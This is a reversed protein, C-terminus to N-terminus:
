ALGLSLKEDKLRISEEEATQDYLIVHRFVFTKIRLNAWM